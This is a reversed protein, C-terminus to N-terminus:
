CRMVDFSIPFSDPPENFEVVFAMRIELQGNGQYYMVVSHYPLNVYAQFVGLFWTGDDQFGPITLIQKYVKYSIYETYNWGMLTITASVTSHYYTLRDTLNLDINGYRDKLVIGFSM